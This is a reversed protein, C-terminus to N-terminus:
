EHLRASAVFHGEEAEVLAGDVTEPAAGNGTGLDQWRTHLQPV